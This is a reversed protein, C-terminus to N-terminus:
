YGVERHCARPRPLQLEESGVALHRPRCPPGSGGLASGQSPGPTNLSYPDPSTRQPRGLSVVPLRERQECPARLHCGGEEQPREEDARAENQGHSPKEVQLTGTFEGLNEVSSVFTNWVLLTSVLASPSPHLIRSDLWLVGCFLLFPVPNDRPEQTQSYSPHGQGRSAGM